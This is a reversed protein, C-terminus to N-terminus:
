DWLLAGTAWWVFMGLVTQVDEKSGKFVAVTRWGIYSNPPVVWQGRVFAELDYAKDSKRSWGWGLTMMNLATELMSFPDLGILYARDYFSLWRLRFANANWGPWPVGQPNTLM